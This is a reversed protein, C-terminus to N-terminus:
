SASGAGTTKPSVIQDWGAPRDSQGIVPGVRPCTRGVDDGPFVGYAATVADDRDLRTWTSPVYETWISAGPGHRDRLEARATDVDLMWGGSPLDTIEIEEAPVGDRQRRRAITRHARRCDPGCFRSPRGPEGTHEVPTGCHGCPETPTLWLYPM